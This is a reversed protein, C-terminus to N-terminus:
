GHRKHGCTCRMMPVVSGLGGVMSGVLKAAGSSSGSRGTALTGAPLATEVGMSRHTEPFM